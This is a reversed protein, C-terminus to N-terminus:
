TLNHIVKTYEGFLSLNKTDLEALNILTPTWLLGPSVKKRDWNFELKLMTKTQM